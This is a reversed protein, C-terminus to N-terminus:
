CQHMSSHQLLQAPSVSPVLLVSMFVSVQEVPMNALARLLQSSTVNPLILTRTITINLDSVLHRLATEQESVQTVAKEVKNMIIENQQSEPQSKFYDGGGISKIEGVIIGQRRNIMLVDCERDVQQAPLSQWNPLGAAAAIDVPNTCSGQDLYKRFKLQSIVMMAEQQNDSLVQLCQLTHHQAQDDLVDTQQHRSPQLDQPNPTFLRGQNYTQSRPQHGRRDRQIRPQHPVQHHHPDLM